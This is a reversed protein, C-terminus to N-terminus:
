AVARLVTKKANKYEVAMGIKYGNAAITQKHM